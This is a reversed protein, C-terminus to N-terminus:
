TSISKSKDIRPSPTRFQTSTVNKNGKCGNNSKRIPSFEIDNDSAKVWYAEESGYINKQNELEQIPKLEEEYLDIGQGQNFYEQLEMDDEDTNIIPQSRKLPIPPWTPKTSNVRQIMEWNYDEANPNVKETTHENEQEEVWKSPTDMQLMIDQNLRSNLDKKISHNFGRFWTAKTTNTWMPTDTDRHKLKNGYKTEMNLSTRKKVSVFPNNNDNSVGRASNESVDARVRKSRSRRFLPDNLAEAKREKKYENFCDSITM